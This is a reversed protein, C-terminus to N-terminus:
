FYSTEFFTQEWAIKRLFSSFSHQMFILSYVLFSFVQFLALSPIWGLFPIHLSHFSDETNSSHMSRSLFWSVTFSFLGSSSALLFSGLFCCFGTPQCTRDCRWAMKAKQQITFPHSRADFKTACWLILYFRTELRNCTWWIFQSGLLAYGKYLLGVVTNYACLTEKWQLSQVMLAFVLEELSVTELSGKTCTTIFTTFTGMGVKLVFKEKKKLSIHRERGDVWSVKSM